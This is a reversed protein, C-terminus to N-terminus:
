LAAYFDSANQFSYRLPVEGQVQWANVTKGAMMQMATEADVVAGGGIRNALNLIGTQHMATSGSGCADKVLVIKLGLAMAAKVAVDVCAETWVGAIYLWEIGRAALDPGFGTKANFVNSESKIVLTENAQPRVEGCIASMPDGLGGFTSRDSMLTPNYPRLDDINPIYAAHYAHIGAERASKLLKQAGGLVAQYGAVLYRGDKRHEEQLDLLLLSSRAAPVALPRKMAAIKELM